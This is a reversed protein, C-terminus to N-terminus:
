SYISEYDSFYQSEISNQNGYVYDNIDQYVMSIHCNNDIMKGGISNSSKIIIPALAAGAVLKIIGKFRIEIM